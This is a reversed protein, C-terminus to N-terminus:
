SLLAPFVGGPDTGPAPTLGASKPPTTPAFFHPRVGAAIRGQLTRLGISRRARERMQHIWEGNEMRWEGNERM